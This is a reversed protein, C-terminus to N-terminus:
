NNSQDQEPLDLIERIAQIVKPSGRRGTLIKSLYADDVSLGTEESVAQALWAQTRAPPGLLKTKVDLGFPTYEAM